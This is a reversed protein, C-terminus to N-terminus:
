DNTLRGFSRQGRNALRLVNPRLGVLTASVFRLEKSVISMSVAFEAAQSVAFVDNGDVEIGPLGYAAGRGSVCPNGAAYRFPVETAPQNECLDRLTVGEVYEMAFYHYGKNSGVDYAQVINPHNLRGAAKIEQQFRQEYEELESKSLNLNITKIAVTRDIIPDVAKYVVGMAGQGIESIIKYPGLPSIM